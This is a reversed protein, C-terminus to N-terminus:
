LRLPAMDSGPPHTRAEPFRAEYLDRYEAHTVTQLSAVLSPLNVHHPYVPPGDSPVAMAHPPLPVDTRATPVLADAVSAVEHSAIRRTWKPLGLWDCLFKLISCHDFTQDCVKGREAYPSVILAPV